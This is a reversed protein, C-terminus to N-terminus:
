KKVWGESPLKVYHGPATHEINRKGALAEVAQLSTNNRKAISQYDQRRAANVSSVLKQVDGPAGGRVIGLYGSATEGVWGQDKAQQLNMAYAAGWGLCLALVVAGSMRVVMRRSLRDTVKMM